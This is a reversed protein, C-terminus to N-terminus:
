SPMAEVTCETIIHTQALGNLAQTHHEILWANPLIGQADPWDIQNYTWIGQGILPHFLNLLEEAMNWAPYLTADIIVLMAPADFFLKSIILNIHDNSWIFLGSSIKCEERLLSVEVYYEILTM